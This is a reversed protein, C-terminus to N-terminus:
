YFTDFQLTNNRIQFNTEFNFTKNWFFHTGFNLSVKKNRIEICSIDVQVTKNWIKFNQGLSLPVSQELNINFINKKKM